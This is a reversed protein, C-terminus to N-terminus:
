VTGQASLYKLVTDLLGEKSDNGTYLEVGQTALYIANLLQDTALHDKERRQLFVQMLKRREERLEPELTQFHQDVIRELKEESPVKIDLRLCRRLFPAPLEREGNSTIVVFPFAHCAVKGKRITVKHESDHSRIQVESQKDSLRALEPIDYRGEEFIHLLDNPLDIDSKDIEDILLVRPYKGPLLATGLPGLRIYNGIDPPSFDKRKRPLNADQLRAIADYSYLADRLTSRSTIPWVLVNKLKLEHAVAYALSTKGTGPKGTVLLPRRLYLAANVLDIEDEEAQYTRGRELNGFRRRLEEQALAELEPSFGSNDGDGDEHAGFTRWTPPKPLNKVGDHPQGDAQFIHWKAM